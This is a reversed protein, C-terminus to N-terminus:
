QNMLRLHERLEMNELSLSIVRKSLDQYPDNTGSDRQGLERSLELVLRELKMLYDSSPEDVSAPAVVQNSSSIARSRPPTVSAPVDALVPTPKKAVPVPRLPVPAPTTVPEPKAPEPKIPEPKIPEPKIPEPKAQEPKAPAPKTAEREEIELKPESPKPEPPLTVTRITEAEVAVVAAPAVAAPPAAAPPAAAPPATPSIGADAKETVTIPPGAVEPLAIPPQTEHTIEPEAPASQVTIAAGLETSVEPEPPGTTEVLVVVPEAVPELTELFAWPTLIPPRFTSSNAWNIAEGFEKLTLSGM